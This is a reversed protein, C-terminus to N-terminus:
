IYFTKCKSNLLSFGYTATNRKNTFLGAASVDLNIGTKTNFYDNFTIKNNIKNKNQIFKINNKKM